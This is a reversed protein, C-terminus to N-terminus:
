NEELKQSSNQSNKKLSWAHTNNLSCFCADIFNGSRSNSLRYNMHLLAKITTKAVTARM